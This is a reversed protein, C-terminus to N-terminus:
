VDIGMLPTHQQAGYVDRDAHHGSPHRRPLTIKLALAKPYAIVRVDEARAIGYRRAIEAATLEPVRILREYCSRDRAILDLTVLFAGANKSRLAACLHMLKM